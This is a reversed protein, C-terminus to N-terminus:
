FPKPDGKKEAERRLLIVLLKDLGWNLVLLVLCIGIIALASLVSDEIMRDAGTAAATGFVVLLISGLTNLRERKIRYHMDTEGTMNETSPRPRKGGGTKEANVMDYGGFFILTVAIGTREGKPRIAELETLKM